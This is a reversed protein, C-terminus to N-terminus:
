KVGGIRVIANTLQIHLKQKRDPWDVRFDTPYWLGNSEVYMTLTAVEIGRHDKTERWDTLSLRDAVDEIKDGFKDLSNEAAIAFIGPVQEASLVNSQPSRGAELAFEAVLRGCVSNVTGIYGNLALQAEEWSQEAILRRRIREALEDAALNTFTTALMKSPDIKSGNNMGLVAEVFIQALRFTKGTGASAGVVNIPSIAPATASASAQAKSTEM